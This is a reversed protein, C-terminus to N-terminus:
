SALTATTRTQTKAAAFTSIRAAIYTADDKVFGLLASGRTWQWQLGLFYLGSVDTLGRRHRLRGDGDLIPLDIWSYDSRFGTAWVVGDVDLFSGDEFQISRERAGVARQHLKVGLKKIKNPSSGVLTEKQSMRSGLKTEISKEILRTKTAWWFMDRGLLRQPLPAQRGGVALHVDRTAALEEAIQFGTNGGGVVAITGDPLDAPARYATSHMQVVEAALDSALEPVRPDQFPGTAVVVQDATLTEDGLEIEFRGDGDRHLARVQSDLRVPLQFEAVYSRLYAVVEDRRPYGDPDGPFPLGPLADYRRPTFLKLSDWRERWAPALETARELIVFSLGTRALLFGASLGAQGGGIVVVDHHSSGTM